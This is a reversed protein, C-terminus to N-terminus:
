EKFDRAVSRGVALTTMSVCFTLLPTMHEFNFNTFLEVLVVLMAIVFSIAAFIKSISYESGQKKLLDM